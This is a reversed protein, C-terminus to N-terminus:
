GLIYEWTDEYIARVIQGSKRPAALPLWCFDFM